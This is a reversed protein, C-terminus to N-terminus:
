NLQGTVFLLSVTLLQIVSESQLVMFSRHSTFGVLTLYLRQTVSTTIRTMTSQFSSKTSGQSQNTNTKKLANEKVTRKLVYKKCIPHDLLTDFTDGDQLEELKLGKIYSLSEIPLFLCDSRHGRLRIARIRRNDGLYGKAGQDKNRDGHDHLNNEYAFEESLQTEAPFYVGKTGVETTGVGVIAQSGFITTGVIRDSGELPHIEKITVITAAYNENEPTLLKM